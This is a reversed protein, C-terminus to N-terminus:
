ICTELIIGLFSQKTIRIKKNWNICIMYGNLVCLFLWASVPPIKELYFIPSIDKLKDNPLLLMDFWERKALFFYKCLKRQIKKSFKSPSPATIGDTYHLYSWRYQRHVFIWGLLNNYKGVLFPPMGSVLFYNGGEHFFDRTTV